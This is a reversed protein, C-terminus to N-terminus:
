EEEEKETRLWNYEDWDISSVKALRSKEHADFYKWVKYLAYSMPKEVWTAAQAKRYEETLMKIAKQLRQESRTM